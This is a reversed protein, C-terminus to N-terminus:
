AHYHAICTRIRQRGLYLILAGGTLLLVWEHPEPVASTGLLGGATPELLQEEGIEYPVVYRGDSLSAQRLQEKQEDTVLVIFSSFPTVIGSKRATENLADLVPLQHLSAASNQMEAEIQRHVLLKAVTDNAVNSQGLLDSVATEQSPPLSVWTGSEGVLIFTNPLNKRVAEYVAFNQLATFGSDVVRSGNAQLYYTLNDPLKPIKGETHIIYIPQATGPTFDGTDPTDAESDDTFLLVLDYAGEVQQLAHLRDTKGFSAQSWIELNNKQQQLSIPQSLLDNFYYLDVTNTDILTDLPLQAYLYSKWDDVGMSHSADALIAIRKNKLMLEANEFQNECSFPVGESAIWPNGAHPIYVTLRNQTRLYAAQSSCISSERTVVSIQQSQDIFDIPQADSFVNRKETIRPLAAEGKQNLATVYSYRVKQNRVPERLSERQWANMNQEQVPIPYVRLKYQVPGVQELIAPDIRRAYQSEFTQNAAGKPAVEGQDVQEKQSPTPTPQVAAVPETAAPPPTTPQPTDAVELQVRQLELDAGLQLDVMVSDQPLSFIYLVEQETDTTNEYEEQITVTAFQNTSDPKATVIREVLRVDLDERDLVSSKLQDSSFSFSTALTRNVKKSEALQIPEDFIEQYYEDAKKVDQEFRGNFVFPFAAITFWNQVRAAIPEELALQDVYAQQLVTMEADTLYRYQALYTDILRNEVFSKRELISEAVQAREEFSKANQYTDMAEYFWVLSGQYALVSAFVAYLLSFVLRTPVPFFSKITHQLVKTVRVGARWYLYLGIFPTAILLVFLLSFALMTILGIVIQWVNESYTVTDYLGYSFFSQVADFIWAIVIPLFFFMLLSAYIGVVVASQYVFLQVLLLYKNKFAKRYVYLVYIAISVIATSLFLINVPTLTKLFILRSLTFAMIPLEVGFLVQLLRRPSRYSKTFISVLSAVTPMAFFVVLTVLIDTPIFDTLQRWSTFQAEQYWQWGFMILWNFTIFVLPLNFGWFLLHALIQLIRPRQRHIDM